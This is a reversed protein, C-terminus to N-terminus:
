EDDDFEFEGDALFTFLAAQDALNCWSQEEATIDGEIPPEAGSDEEDDLPEPDKEEKDKKKKRGLTADINDDIKKALESVKMVPVDPISEVIELALKRCLEANYEPDEFTKKM